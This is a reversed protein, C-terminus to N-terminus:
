TRGSISFPKRENMGALRATYAADAESVGEVMIKTIAEIDDLYLTAYPLETPVTQIKRRM